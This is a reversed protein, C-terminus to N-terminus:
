VTMLLQRACQCFNWLRGSQFAATPLSTMFSAIQVIISNGGGSESVHDRLRKLPSELHPLPLSILVCMEISKFISFNFRLTLLLEHAQCRDKSITSFDFDVIM